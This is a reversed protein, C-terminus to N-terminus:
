FFVNKNMIQEVPLKIIPNVQPFVNKFTRKVSLLSPLRNLDSFPLNPNWLVPIRRGNQVVNFPTQVWDEVFDSVFRKDIRDEQNTMGEIGNLIKAIYQYHGPKDMLTEIQLVANKRMWTYYPFIRKMVSMEFETLDGYDFLFTKSSVAADEFSMGRSIQSAFHIFRDQAEVLGGIKAGIKYLIFNKTDTPDLHPPLFKIKGEMAAGAGIDKAFFGEDIVDYELAKRYLDSWRISGISGDSYTIKMVGEVNGKNKIIEWSKKNFEVDLADSGIALWNNFVNSIKNRVHFAPLITTQNLKIFHTFRDFLRLFRSQDKAIQLKRAQNAKQVISSNVKMVDMYKQVKPIQESTLEVMPTAIDELVNAPLGMKELTKFLGEEYLSQRNPFQGLKSAIYAENEMFKKAEQHVIEKLLGYNVVAKYGDKPIEGKNLVDGFVYLMERMYADDYMLENHKLARALYIEAIDEQFVNKGKLIDGYKRKFYENLQLINPDEIWDIEKIKRSLGFPNFKRGYGLQKGFQPYM